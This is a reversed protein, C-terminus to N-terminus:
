KRETAPVRHGASPEFHGSGRCLLSIPEGQYSWRYDGLQSKWTWFIWGNTDAEYKSVQAAFWQSYFAQQTSPNWTSTWQVDDPVSLSFEGVITPTDGDSSLTLPRGLIPCPNL